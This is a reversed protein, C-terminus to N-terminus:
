IIIEYEIHMFLFKNHREIRIKVKVKGLMVITFFRALTNKKLESQIIDRFKM